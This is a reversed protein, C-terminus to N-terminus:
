EVWTRMVTSFSRSMRGIRSPTLWGCWDRTNRWSKETMRFWTKTMFCKSFYLIPMLSRRALLLRDGALFIRDRWTLRSLKSTTLGIGEKHKPYDVKANDSFFATIFLTRGKSSGSQRLGLSTLNAWLWDCYWLNCRGLIERRRRETMVVWRDVGIDWFTMAKCSFRAM